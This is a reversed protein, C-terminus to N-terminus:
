DKLIHVEEKLVENITKILDVWNLPKSVYANVGAEFYSEIHELVADATVAIIPINGKDSQMKRIQRTTEPGDMEPMRVDMLILDFTNKEDTYIELAEIGNSAVQVDHGYAGLFKQIILQNVRNDEALLLNLPRQAKYCNAQANQPEPAVESQAVKYPVEFWFTSGKGLESQVGIRGGLLESLRKSIALGLGTGEYKRSISADAQTFESFLMNLTDESMGIGTDAVTFKLFEDGQDRQVIEASIRVEGEHTFKHANGILNLLIQRIRTPDSCVTEPFGESFALKKEIHQDTKRRHNFVSVVEEVLDKLRFDIHEIEMKGAELKSMDLIDNVVRLLAHTSNKIRYVKDRSDEELEDELLLDAFGLVGTMPTRLEHSMSALFESKVKNSTEAKDKAIINEEEIRKRQILGALTSAVNMILQHEHDSIEHGAPLYLNLVGLLKDEYLLPICAHGHNNIGEFSIEHDADLCTKYIVERTQAARGCLCTGLSLKECQSKIQPHLKHEAVMVLEDTSEDYLFVSGMGLLELNERQLILHLAQDLLEHLGHSSLSLSLIQSILEHDAFLSRAEQEAAKLATMDSIIGVFHLQNDVQMQSVALRAPFLTGDKKQAHVERAKGIVKAVGTELFQDIYSDHKHKDPEPVFVSLNQGVLEGRAYGFLAEAADNASLIIGNSNATIIGDLATDIVTRSRRASEILAKRAEVRETIDQITGSSFLNEGKPGFIHECREHVWRVQQDDLRIIRYEVDYSYNGTLSKKYERRTFELDDPHIASKYTTYSPQAADLDAGILHYTQDSWFVSQGTRDYKWSGIQAITQAKELDEERLSIDSSWRSVAGLTKRFSVFVISGFALVIALAFYFGQLQSQGMIETVDSSVEVIGRVDHLQWDTKPSEPHSNHCSVCAESAMTDAIAVRVIVRGGEDVREVYPAQADKNLAQWAKQGFPDSERGTRNKFPFPSYFDLNFKEDKSLDSLDNVMSAPLPIRNKKGMHDASVTIDNEGEMIKRVVNVTYYSRLTKVQKALQGATNIAHEEASKQTFYPFIFFAACAFVVVALLQIPMLQWALNKDKKM